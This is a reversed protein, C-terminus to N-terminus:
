KRRRKMGVAQEEKDEKAIERGEKKKNQEDEM